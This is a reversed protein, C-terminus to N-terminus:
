LALGSTVFLFRAILIWASDAAIALKMSLNLSEGSQAIVKGDGVILFGGVM